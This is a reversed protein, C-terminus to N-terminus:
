IQYIPCMVVMENICTWYSITQVYALFYIGILDRRTMEKEDRQRTLTWHKKQPIVRLKTM